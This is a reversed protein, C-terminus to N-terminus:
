LWGIRKFQAYLLACILGIVGLVGFYGYRGSREPMFALNRGYIGATATPAALTAAWAALQRTIAGTRSQELLGAVELIYGLTENLGHARTAARHAHDYVDRFWPRARPDIAPQESGALKAAMEEM